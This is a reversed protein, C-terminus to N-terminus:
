GPPVTTTTPVPVGPALATWAAPTMSRYDYISGGVADVDAVAQLFAALQEPTAENPLGGIPAVRAKPDGLATRMREVSEVVYRYGDRYGSSERRNTWYAMPLWIDYVDRLETWPFAPWFAPNIVELQVAPPVNGAIAYGEGVDARLRQSLEVLHENRVTVDTVAQTEEIDVALGDFRDGRPTTFRQVDLLVSLDHDVDALKPLYWGVIKLGRDHAREIWSALLGNDVLGQTRDDDRAAQLFVTHVDRTAMDDVAEVPVPVPRGPVNYAPVYDYVDVWMGLGQYASLDVDRHSVGSARDEITLVAV